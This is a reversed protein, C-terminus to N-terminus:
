CVGVYKKLILCFLILSYSRCFCYAKFNNLFFLLAYVRRDFGGVIAM